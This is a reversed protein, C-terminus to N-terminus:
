LQSAVFLGFAVELFALTFIGVLIVSRAERRLLAAIGVTLSPVAIAISAIQVGGDSLLKNLGVWYAPYLAVLLMLGIAWWGLRSHPRLKMHMRSRPLHARGIAPSVM